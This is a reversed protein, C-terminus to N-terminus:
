TDGVGDRYYMIYKPMTRGNNNYWAEIRELVMAKVDKIDECARDRTQLRMSGLYKTGNANVSGVVAAISPTGALAATDPHTM